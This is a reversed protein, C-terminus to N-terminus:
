YPVLKELRGETTQCLMILMKDKRPLGYVLFRRDDRQASRPNLSVQCFQRTADCLIRSYLREKGKLVVRTANICVVDSYRLSFFKLSLVIQKKQPMLMTLPPRCQSQKSTWPSTMSNQSLKPNKIRKQITM